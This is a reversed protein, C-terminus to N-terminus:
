IKWYRRMMGYIEMKYETNIRPGCKRYFSLESGEDLLEYSAKTCSEKVNNKM